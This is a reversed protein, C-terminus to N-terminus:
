KPSHQQLCKKLSKMPLRNPSKLLPSFIEFKGSLKSTLYMVLDYSGKGRGYQPGASHAFLIKRVEKTSHAMKLSQSDNYLSM